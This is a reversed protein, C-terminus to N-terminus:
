HQVLSFNECGMGGKSTVTLTGIRIFGRPGIKACGKAQPLIEPLTDRAHLSRPGNKERVEM